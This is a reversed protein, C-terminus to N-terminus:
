LISILNFRNFEKIILLYWHVRRFNFNAKIRAWYFAWEQWTINLFTWNGVVKHLEIIQLNGISKAKQCRLSSNLWTINLLTFKYQSELNFFLSNFNINLIRFASILLIKCIRKIHNFVALLDLNRNFLFYIFQFPILLGKQLADFFYIGFLTSRNVLKQNRFSTTVSHERISIDVRDDFLLFDKDFRLGDKSFFYAYLLLKDILISAKRYLLVEGKFKFADDGQSSFKNKPM